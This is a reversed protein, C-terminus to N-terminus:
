MNAKWPVCLSVLNNFFHKSYFILTEEDENIDRFARAELVSGTRSYEVKLNCSGNIYSLLGLMLWKKSLRNSDLTSFYNVGERISEEDINALISSIGAQVYGVSFNRGSFVGIPTFQSRPLYDVNKYSFFFKQLSKIKCTSNSQKSVCRRTLTM